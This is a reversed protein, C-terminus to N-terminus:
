ASEAGRTFLFELTQLIFEAESANKALHAIDFAIIQSQPIWNIKILYETYKKELEFIGMLAHAQPKGNEDLIGPYDLLDGLIATFDKSSNILQNTLLKPEGRLIKRASQKWGELFEQYSLDPQFAMFMNYTVPIICRFNIDEMLLRNVLQAQCNLHLDCVPVKVMSVIFEAKIQKGAPIESEVQDPTKIFSLNTHKIFEFKFNSIPNNTKNGFLLVVKLQNRGKSADELLSYKANISFYDNDHVLGRKRCAAICFQEIAKPNSTMLLNSELESFIPVEKSAKIFGEFDKPIPTKERNQPTSKPDSGFTHRDLENDTHKPTFSVRQPLNTQHIIQTQFPRKRDSQSGFSEIKSLKELPTASQSDITDLRTPQFNIPPNTFKKHSPTDAEDAEKGEEDQIESEDLAENRPSDKHQDIHQNSMNKLDKESHIIKNHHSKADEQPTLAIRELLTNRESQYNSPTAERNQNPNLTVEKNITLTAKINHLHLEQEQVEQKIHELGEFAEWPVPRNRQQLSSVIGNKMNELDNLVKKDHQALKLIKEQNEEPNYSSFISKREKVGSSYSNPRSNTEANGEMTENKKGENSNISGFGKPSDDVAFNDKNPSQRSNKQISDIKRPAFSFEKVMTKPVSEIVEFVLESHKKSTYKREFFKEAKEIVEESSVLTAKESIFKDFENLENEETKIKALLKVEDETKYPYENFKAAKANLKMKMLNLSLLDEKVKWIFENSNHIERELEQALNAKKEYYDNVMSQLKASVAIKSRKLEEDLDSIQRKLMSNETNEKGQELNQYSVLDIDNGIRNKEEEEEQQIGHGNQKIQNDREKETASKLQEALLQLSKDSAMSETFERTKVPIEKALPEKFDINFCKLRLPIRVYSRSLKFYLDKFTTAVDAEADEFKMAWYCICEIATQVYQSGLTEYEKKLKKKAPIFINAGKEDAVLEKDTLAIKFINELINIQKALCAAFNASQEKSADKLMELAYYKKLPPDSKPELLVMEILGLLTTIMQAKDGDFYCRLIQASTTSYLKQKSVCLQFSKRLKEEHTNKTMQTKSSALGSIFHNIVSREVCIHKLHNNKKQNIFM